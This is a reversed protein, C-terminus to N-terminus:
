KSYMAFEPPYSCNKLMSKTISTVFAVRAQQSADPLTRSRSRYAETTVPKPYYYGAHRDNASVPVARCVFAPAVFLSLSRVM